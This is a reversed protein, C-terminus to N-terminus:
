RLRARMTLKCSSSRSLALASRTRTRRITKTQSISRGATPCFFIRAGFNTDAGSRRHLSRANTLLSACSARSARVVYRTAHLALEVLKTEKTRAGVCALTEAALLSANFVRTEDLPTYSFCVEDTREVSRHLDRRIFDCTSRAVHLYAEDKFADSAAILARAAFATPVITPTGRPAYFARGQWDFNYGWAAGHYGDLAHALLDSLLARATQEDEQTRTTRFRALAALAFLALGKANQEHPVLLFPRLNIPARKGLQTWALRALRSHRLPTAQFLRSNLADFPDHGAFNRARCWAFLTQYVRELEARMDSKVM